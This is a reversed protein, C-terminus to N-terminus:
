SRRHPKEGCVRPHDRSQRRARPAASSKGAYAPTIGPHRDTLDPATGKGRMRPPSGARARSSAWGARKEGCVRPHDGEHRRVPQSSPRKGAYAPTIRNDPHFRSPRRVKGRMRPPSGQPVYYDLRDKRKEGCVCPHDWLWLAVLRAPQSKGAYAPTIRHGLLCSFDLYVKGRM